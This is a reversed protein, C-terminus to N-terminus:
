ASRDLSRGVALDPSPPSSQILKAMMEGQIQESDKIEKAIASGIEAQGSGILRSTGLQALQDQMSPGSASGITM